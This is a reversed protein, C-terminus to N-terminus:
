YKVKQCVDCSTVYARIAQNMRPWYYHTALRNYTRHYGSHAGETLSDHVWAIVDEQLSKGVCVQLNSDWNSFYILGNKDLLRIM